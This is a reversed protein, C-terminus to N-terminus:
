LSDRPIIASEYFDIGMERLRNEHKALRVKYEDWSRSKQPSWGIEAHGIIRPFAMYEIEDLKDITESWLPAEIGIINDEYIGSVITAPDWIYASDLEIYAAWHLGFPTTSDYQMDLYTKAAPTMLIKANQAVGNQANEIGDWHQVISGLELTAASIDAWGLVKKGHKTVIKQVKNIFYIYDTKKTVLSEDGGIHIYEGPTMEVLERIVDDIFNYVEPNRTCLTSFGVAMGTYAKPNPDKKNCNLEPYAVLAANTHGPMDIEPVITVFKSRAYRVIEKYDEQTYFGGKEGGVQTLGGIETLKPWSKIEIRWGQDDSLHLHLRNMKYSAIYDIYKKVVDVGFFHRSVDLMAGRYEFRPSDIIKGSAILLPSLNIISSEIEKPMMQRITQIGYFLGQETNAKLILHDNSIELEYAEPDKNSLNEIIFYMNGASPASGIPSIDLPRDSFARVQQAFDEIFYFDGSTFIVTKDTIEFSEGTATTSVPIPILVENNLDKPVIEKSACSFIVISVLILLAFQFHTLIRRNEFM